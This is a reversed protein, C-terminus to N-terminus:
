LTVGEVDISFSAAPNISKLMRAAISRAHPKNIIGQVDPNLYFTALQKTVVYGSETPVTMTATVAYLFTM